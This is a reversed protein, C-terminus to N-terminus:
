IPVSRADRTILSRRGRPWPRFWRPEYHIGDGALHQKCVIGRLRGDALVAVADYVGSEFWVPLGVAALIGTSHRELEELVQWAMRQVGPSLFADECGYGTVCLEPLCLFAVGRRKAADLAAIIRDRNGDWDLPTQNLAAGGVRILHM